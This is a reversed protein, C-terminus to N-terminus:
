GLNPLMRETFFFLFLKRGEISAKILKFMNKVLDDTVRGRTVKKQVLFFSLFFFFM